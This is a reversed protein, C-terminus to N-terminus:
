LKAVPLRTAFVLCEAVAEPACGNLGAGWTPNFELLAWGRDQVLALDVVCTSPLAVEAAVQAAMERPEADDAKGEYVASTVVRGELVFTRAEAVIPLIESTLVQTSPELGRCELELAAASEYIRSRFLKPVVSKVFVPFIRGRMDSLAVRRVERKLFQVPTSALLDDAPCILELGLKQAVVLAFTDPGYIKVASPDLQPPAWFRGLREVAGGGEAWTSCVADRESDPKEPVVLVLGAFKGRQTAM